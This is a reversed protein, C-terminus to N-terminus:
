GVGKLSARASERLEQSVALYRASELCAHNGKRFPVNNLRGFPPTLVYRM